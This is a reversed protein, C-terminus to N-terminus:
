LVSHRESSKVDSLNGLKLYDFDVVRGFISLTFGYLNVASTSTELFSRDNMEIRFQHLTAIQARIQFARSHQTPAIM